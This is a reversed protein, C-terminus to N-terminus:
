PYSVTLNSFMATSNDAFIGWSTNPAKYIRNTLAIEDNIYVVVISNEVIIKVKYDKGVQLPVSIENDAENNLASRKKREFKFKNEAPVFRLQFANEFGNCAGILFGFDKSSQSYSVTTSIMYRNQAVPKFLLSSFGLSNDSTLKYDKGATIVDVMGTKVDEVPNEKQTSLWTDVTPPVTTALDGNSLAYVKHCILNGGWVIGGYDWNLTLRNCWGFIYANGNKDTAAKAAYFGAGDLRGSGSPKVWPGNLSSSKRYHLYKRKESDLNQDSFLLYYFGGLKLISPCEMNFYNVDGGDYFVGAYTWNLLDLSTYKAIVGRWTGNHNKRATVLMIWNNSSEDRIVFPDRWNDNEDYQFGKPAYITKFDTNKIFQGSSNNSTALMIGERTVGNTCGTTNPNHGTYFAYYTNGNKLVGGAGIAHDQDCKLTSSSVIPGTETYNHFDNTQFAYYPHKQGLDSWVDKLYYLTYTSSAEDYLPSIDGVGSGDKSKVYISYDNSEEKAQCGDVILSQNSDEQKSCGITCCLAFLISWMKNLNM